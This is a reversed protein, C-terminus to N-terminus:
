AFGEEDNVSYGKTGNKIYVNPLPTVLYKGNASSISQGIGYLLSLQYLIDGTHHTTINLEIFLSHKGM